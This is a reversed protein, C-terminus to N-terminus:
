IEFKNFMANEQGSAQETIAGTLAVLIMFVSQVTGSRAPIISTHCLTNKIELAGHFLFGSSDRSM